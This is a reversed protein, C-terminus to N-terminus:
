DYLLQAIDAEEMNAHTYFKCGTDVIEDVTEGSLAKYALEVALYGIQYPDQTVAGYFYQSAVADKQPKGADFGVVILDKYAGNERDLDTGDNTAALIGTVSAENSCFYGILNSNNQLMTQCAAQADTYSTTPPVTVKISIVVDGTADKKFVDHGTVEVGGAHVGECLEVMKNIFGNTRDLISASTADQSQVAIAVPAEATAANLREAFSAEKFMEEAALEGANYNNTSATSVVSGAPADPVGSDFGVVPIGASLAQELQSNLSQTDLAALCLAKPNKALAANVMDVQTSIDSESPPGEFTMEVNYKEAADKSGAYVTQWFQHQFGKSVVAIYPREGDTAAPEESAPEAPEESAPEAPEESAPATSEPTSSSNGGGCGVFVTLSLVLILAISLIRKM